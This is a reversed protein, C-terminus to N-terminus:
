LTKEEGPQIIIKNPATWKQAKTLDFLADPKVHILINHKAQLTKACEAAEELGMNYIGDGCLLAYDLDLKALKQMQDTKSTDGSCYIKIGELSLIFGVCQAPNHRLNQAEVAEIEIGDFSFCNHKGGALAEKNTIIKCDKKQTILDLKNHDFHEHTVLVVDAPKDYGEGAYPDVYIVRGDQLTFRLSGHGQYLLKVM